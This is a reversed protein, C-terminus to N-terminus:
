FTITITITTTITTITVTTTPTIMDPTAVAPANALDAMSTYATAGAFLEETM